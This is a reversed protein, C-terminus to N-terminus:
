SCSRPWRTARLPGGVYPPAPDIRAQPRIHPETGAVPAGSTWGASAGPRFSMFCMATASALGCYTRSHRSRRARSSPTQRLFEWPKQAEAAEPGTFRSNVAAQEFSVRARRQSVTLGYVLPAPSQEAVIVTHVRSCRTHGSLADVDYFGRRALPVFAFQNRGHESLVALCRGARRQGYRRRTGYTRWRSAGCASKTSSTTCSTKRAASFPRAANSPWDDSRVHSTAM